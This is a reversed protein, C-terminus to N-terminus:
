KKVISALRKEIAEIVTVRPFEASKEESLYQELKEADNFEKVKAIIDVVGKSLDIGTAANVDDVIKALGSKVIAALREEGFTDPLVDGSKYKKAFNDKDAFDNIVIYKKM